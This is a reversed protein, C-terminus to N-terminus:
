QTAKNNQKREQPRLSISSAHSVQTSVMKNQMVRRIPPVLALRSLYKNQSPNALAQGDSCDPVEVLKEFSSWLQLTLFSGM